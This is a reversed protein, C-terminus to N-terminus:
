LSKRVFIADGPCIPRDLAPNERAKKCNIIERSGNARIIEVNTQNAYENFDGCTVIARLVTTDGTYLQRGAAKVEGGVSYFRDGAKVIVTIQGFIKKEIYTQRVEREFDGFKKGAAKVSNIYPLNVTGDSRVTFEKDNLENPIDLLSIRLVDGNRIEDATCVYTSHNVNDTICGTAVLALLAAVATFIIGKFKM